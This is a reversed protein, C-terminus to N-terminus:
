GAGKPIQRLFLSLDFRPGPPAQSPLRHHLLASGGSVRCFHGDGWLPSLLTGIRPDFGKLLRKECGQRPAISESGRQDPPEAASWWRSSEKTGGPCGRAAFERAEDSAGGRYREELADRGCTETRDDAKSLDVEKWAMRSLWGFPSQHCAAQSSFKRDNWRNRLGWRGEWSARRV